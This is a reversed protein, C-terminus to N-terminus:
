NTTQEKEKQKQLEQAKEAIMQRLVHANEQVRRSGIQAGRSMLQPLKSMAKKGTDTEYFAIMDRLEKESFESVYIDVYENKLKDWSLYSSLFELMVDKYPEMQPQRQLQVQLLQRISKQMLSDMEMMDLLQEAAQYHSQGGASTQLSATVLTLLLASLMLLRKM